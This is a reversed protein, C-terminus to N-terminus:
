IFGFQFVEAVDVARIKRLVIVNCPKQLLSKPKSKRLTVFYDVLILLIHM